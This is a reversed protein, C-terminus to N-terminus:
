VESLNKKSMSKPYTDVGLKLFFRCVQSRSRQEKGAILDLQQAVTTPVRIGIFKTTNEM